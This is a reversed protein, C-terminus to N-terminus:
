FGKPKIDVRAENRTNAGGNNWTEGTAPLLRPKIEVNKCVRKEQLM